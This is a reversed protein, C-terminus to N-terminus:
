PSPITSIPIIAANTPANWQNMATTPSIPSTAANKPAIAQNEAIFYANCKITAYKSM